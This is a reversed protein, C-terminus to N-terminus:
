KFWADAPMGSKLELDPNPITVKVLYVLKVREKRTQIMKPTFEGVPSIYSVRGKYAKSPFTDTKVEVQQGPKVKGIENEDVFLKLDVKSLDSLTLIEQGITAVEGPEVNRSTIIGDFPARLETNKLRIEALELAAEAYQVQARAAEVERETLDIKM